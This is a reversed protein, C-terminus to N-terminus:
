IFLALILGLTVRTNMICIVEALGIFPLSLPPTNGGCPSFSINSMKPVYSHFLLRQIDTYGFIRSGVIKNLLLPSVHLM